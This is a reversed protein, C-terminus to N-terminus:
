LPFSVIIETGECIAANIQFTGKHTATRKQMNSLGNGNKVTATNFGNGDDSIRVQLKQNQLTLAVRINHCGSYKVANNVAEKFILYIDRRMEMSIQMVDTSPEKNFEFNIDAPTCRENAFNLMRDEISKFDDNGPKIMWVIDSMNEIMEESNSSIKNLLEASQPHSEKVQNNVISSYMRISSLTSGVDDHLDSAIKNRVAQIKLVENLRYRYFSYVAALLLLIVASIFWWTQWFPPVITVPIRVTAVNSNFGNTGEVVFSYTGPDLHSYLAKFNQKSDTIWDDDWGELKYRVKNNAPNLHDILEYSIIVPFEDYAIRLGKQAVLGANSIIKDGTQVQVISLQPRLTYPSLADKNVKM